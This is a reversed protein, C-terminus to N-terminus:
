SRSQTCPRILTLTLVPVAHLAQHAVVSQVSVTRNSSYFAVAPFVEGKGGLESFCVGHAEENITYSLTGLDMVLDCRVIDGKHVKSITKGISKGHYLAGNYGRLMWMEHSYEYSDNSIPRIAAGFCTCEDNVQDQELKFEWSAQGESFGKDLM